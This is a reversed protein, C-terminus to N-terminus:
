AAARHWELKSRDRPLRRVRGRAAQGYKRGGPLPLSSAETQHREKDRMTSPTKHLRVASSVGRGFERDQLITVEAWNGLRGECFECIDRAIDPFARSLLYCRWHLDDGSQNRKQVCNTGAVCLIAGDNRRARMT